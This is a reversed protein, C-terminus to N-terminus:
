SSLGLINKLNKCEKEYIKDIKEFDMARTYIEELSFHLESAIGFWRAAEELAETSFSRAVRLEEGSLADNKSFFTGTDIVEGGDTLMIATSTDPLFIAEIKEGDLPSPCLIHAKGSSLLNKALAAMIAECAKETGKLTYLKKSSKELTNLRYAGSKGFASILRIERMKKTKQEDLLEKLTPINKYCDPPYCNASKSFSECKGSIALYYYATKYARAKQEVLSLIRERQAILFKFVFGEGLNVIKDVAGPVTADREHPATGDLVAVRGCESEFIVGDLSSPDSSCLIIECSIGDGSIDSVLRKMFSSKGTGPGGKLVLISSFESSPFVDGFYSRFGGYGNAAAFFKKTIIGNQM